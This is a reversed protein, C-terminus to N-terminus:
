SSTCLLGSLVDELVAPIAPQQTLSSIQSVGAGNCSLRCGCLVGELVALIVPQQTLSASARGMVLFVAVM